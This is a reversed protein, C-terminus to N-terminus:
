KFRVESCAYVILVDRRACAPMVKEDLWKHLRGVEKRRSRALIAHIDDLSIMRVNQPGGATDLKVYEPSSDCYRSLTKNPKVYGLINCIDTASFKPLGNIIVARVTRKGFAIHVPSNSM